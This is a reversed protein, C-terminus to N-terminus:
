IRFDPPRRASLSMCLWRFRALRCISLSSCSKFAPGPSHSPAGWFRPRSLDPGPSAAVTRRRSRPPATFRPRRHCPHRRSAMTSSLAPRPHGNPSRNPSRSALSISRQPRRSPPQENASPEKPSLRAPPPSPLVNSAQPSRDVTALPPWSNSRTATEPVLLHSNPIRITVASGLSRELTGSRAFTRTRLSSLGYKARIRVSGTFTGKWSLATGGRCFRDGIAETTPPGSPAFRVHVHALAGFDVEVRDKSISGHADYVTAGEGAFRVIDAGRPSAIFSAGQALEFYAQYGGPITRTIAAEGRGPCALAVLTFVVATLWPSWILWPSHFRRHATTSM